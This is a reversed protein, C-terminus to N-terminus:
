ATEPLYLICGCNKCFVIKSLSLENIMQPTCRQFCGGCVEDDLPALADEGHVKAMRHYQDRVDAPLATEAQTLEAEVRTLESELSDKESAVSEQIAKLDAKSKAVGEEAEKVSGEDESVKDLLEIIEDSLVSNAQEDAAIQEMFAQYEKNNSASNLKARIDLIRSERERLSLNKEDFTMRCRQLVEKAEALQAELRAVTGEGAKVKKPGRDLRDKLDTRQRHLRHIERLASAEVAM